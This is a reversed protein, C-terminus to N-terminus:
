NTVTHTYDVWEIVYAYVNSHIGYELCTSHDPYYVDLRSGKIAGGRDEVTAYGYDASGDVGALYLETGFDWGKPAAVVKHDFGDLLNIGSATLGYGSSGPAKGCCKKCHCYATAKIWYRDSYKFVTGDELYVKQAVTDVRKVASASLDALTIDNDSAMTKRGSEMTPLYAISAYANVALCLALVVAFLIRHISNLYQKM